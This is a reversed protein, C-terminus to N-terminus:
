ARKRGASRSIAERSPDPLVSAGEAWSQLAKRSFGLRKGFKTHPIEGNSVKTYITAKAIPKGIQALFKVADDIGIGDYPEPEMKKNLRAFLRNCEEAVIAQLESRTTVIIEENM